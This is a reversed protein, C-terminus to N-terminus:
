RASVVLTGAVLDGIRQNRESALIAIGAPLGGLLASSTMSCLKARDAYLLAAKVMKLETELSLRYAGSSDISDPSAGITIHLGKM